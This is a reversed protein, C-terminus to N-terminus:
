ETENKFAYHSQHDFILMEGRGGWRNKDMGTFIRGNESNIMVDVVNRWRGDGRYDGDKNSHSIVIFSQEQFAQKLKLFKKVDMELSDKTDFVILDFDSLQLAGLEGVIQFNSNGMIDLENLLKTFPPTNYQEGAIYLINYGLQNLHQSFLLAFSSKGGGGLGSIFFSTPFCIDGLLNRWKEGIPVVDFKQNRVQEPTMAKPIPEIGDLGNLAANNNKPEKKCDCNWNCGISFELGNLVQDHIQLTEGTKAIKVFQQLSKVIQITSHYYPDSKPITGKDIAKLLIALLHAAKDKTITKGQISVFRKLYQTSTRIRATGVIETFKLLTDKGIVVQQNDKMTKHAMLLQRQIQMIETGYTSTKRIRKELIARQLANIFNLLQAKTKNKQHLGIFRKIFKIDESIREFPKSNEYNIRPAKEPEHSTKRKKKPVKKTPNEKSDTEKAQIKFFEQHLEHYISKVSFSFNVPTDKIKTVRINKKNISASYESSAAGLNSKELYELADGRKVYGSILAKAYHKADEKTYNQKQTKFHENLLEFYRNIKTRIELNDTYNRWHSHNDTANRTFIYGKELREPLKENALEKAKVFYNGLTIM